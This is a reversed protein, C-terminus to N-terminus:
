EGEESTDDTALEERVVPYEIKDVILNGNLSLRASGNKDTVVREVVVATASIFVTSIQDLEEIDEVLGLTLIASVLDDFNVTAM